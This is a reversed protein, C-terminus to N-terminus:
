FNISFKNLIYHNQLQEVLNFLPINENPFTLNQDIELLPILVFDREKIGPHPIKLSDEDVIEENFLLLDIDIERPGWRYTKNRGIKNELQKIESHLQHPSFTTEIKIVANLFNQQSTVGMPTTEYISSTALLSHDKSQKFFMIVQNIYFQSDGKNSGLGLYAINNM